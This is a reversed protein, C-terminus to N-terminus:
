SQVLDPSWLCQALPFLITKTQLTIKFSWMILANLDAMVIKELARPIDYQCLCFKTILTAKVLVYAQTDLSLLGIRSVGDQTVFSSDYTM